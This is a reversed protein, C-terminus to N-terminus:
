SKKFDEDMQRWEAFTMSKQHYLIYPCRLSYDIKIILFLDGFSTKEEHSDISYFEKRLENNMILLDGVKFSNM